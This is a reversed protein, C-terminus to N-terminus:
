EGVVRSMAEVAQQQMTPTVHSYTDITQKSTRHGLLEQVVKVPVGRETLSTAVAHRLTRPSAYPVGAIAALNRLQERVWSDDAHDGTRGAFVLGTEEYAGGAAIRDAAQRARHKRLARVTRPALLITRPVGGKEPNALVIRSGDLDLDSWRLDLIEGLRLGTTAVVAVFGGLRHGDAADMLRRVEDGGPVVPAVRQVRPRQAGDAPNRLIRGRTVAQELAGHILTHLLEIGKPAMGAATRDRYLDEIDDVRLRVLPLDAIRKGAENRADSGKVHLKVLRQYRALSVPALTTRRALYRDLYEAFAQASPDLGAQVDAIAKDRLKACARKGAPGPTRVFISVRKGAANVYRAEWRNDTRWRPESGSGKDRRLEGVDRMM